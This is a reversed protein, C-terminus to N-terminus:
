GGQTADDSALRVFEQAIASRLEMSLANLHEPRNLTVTTVGDDTRSLIVSM